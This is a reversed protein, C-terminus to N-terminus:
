HTADVYDIAERLTVFKTTNARTAPTLSFAGQHCDLQHGHKLAAELATLRASDEALLEVMARAIELDKSHLVADAMRTAAPSGNASTLKHRGEYFTRCPLSYMEGTAVCTCVIALSTSDSCGPAKAILIVVLESRDEHRWRSGIEPAEFGVDVM